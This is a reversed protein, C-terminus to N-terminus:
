ILTPCMGLLNEGGQLLSKFKLSKLEGRGEIWSEGKKNACALIVAKICAKGRFFEKRCHQERSGWGTEHRCQQSSSVTALDVQREQFCDKLIGVQINMWQQCPCFDTTNVFSKVRYKKKVSDQKTFLICKINSLMFFEKKCYDEKFQTYSFM